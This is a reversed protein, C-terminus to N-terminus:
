TLDEGLFREILAVGAGPDFLRGLRATVASLGGLAYDEFLRQRSAFRSGVIEAALRMLRARPGAPLTPGKLFREVWPGTERAALDGQTPVLLLGQGGLLELSRLAEAHHSIAYQLALHVALPDAIVGEGLPAPAPQLEAAQLLQRVTAEHRGIDALVQWVAPLSRVGLADAMLFGLGFLAQYKVCLRRTFAQTDFTSVTQFCLKATEIEGAYLVRDPPILVDDFILAADIEDLGELSPIGGLPQRCLISVGPTSPRLVFGVVQEKPRADLPGLSSPFTLVVIEDAYPAGTCLTKAGSVVVGSADARVIRLLDQKEFPLDRGVPPDAFALTDVVAGELM